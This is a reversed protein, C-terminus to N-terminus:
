EYGGIDDVAFYVTQESSHKQAITFYTVADWEMTGTDAFSAKPILIRYWTDAATVLAKFDYDSHDGADHYFKAEALTLDTINNTYYWIAIWDNYSLDIADVPTCKLRSETNAALPACALKLCAVGERPTPTATAETLAGGGNDVIWETDLDCAHAQRFLSADLTLSYNVSNPAIDDIKLARLFVPITIIDSTLKLSGGIMRYRDIQTLNEYRSAGSTYAKLTIRNIESGLVQKGAGRGMPVEIDSMRSVYSPILDQVIGLTLSGLTPTTM